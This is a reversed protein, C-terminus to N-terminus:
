QLVNSEDNFLGLRGQRKAVAKALAPPMAAMPTTMAASPPPAAPALADGITYKITWHCELYGNMSLTASSTGSVCGYLRSVVVISDESPAGDYDPPSDGANPDALRSDTSHEVEGGALAGIFITPYTNSQTEHKNIGVPEKPDPDLPPNPFFDSYSSNKFFADSEVEVTTANSAFYPFNHIVLLDPEEVGTFRKGNPAVPTISAGASAFHEKFGPTGSVFVSNPVFFTVGFAIKEPERDFGGGTGVGASGGTGVGVPGPSYAAGGSLSNVARVYYYYGNGPANDVFSTGTINTAYETYPGAPSTSRYVVYFDAGPSASWTVTVSNVETATVVNTPAAPADPNAINSYYSDGNADYGRVRYDYSNGQTRGSPANSRVNGAVDAIQVFPGGNVSEEVKYGTATSNNQTWNLKITTSTDWSATLNEPEWLTRTEGILPVTVADAATVYQDYYPGSGDMTMAWGADDMAVRYSQGPTLNRFTFNGSASTLVTPETTDRVANSNLDLYVRRGNYFPEGPDKIGTRNMDHYVQGKILAQTTQGFDLGTYNTGNAVQFHAGSTPYTVRWGSQQIIRVIHSGGSQNTTITYAGTASSIASPEGADKVGNANLDSYVTWGSLGAEGTNKAANDNADNFVVGSLTALLRRPELQEPQQRLARRVAIPSRSGATGGHRKDITCHASRVM